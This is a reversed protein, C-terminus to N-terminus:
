DPIYGQYSNKTQYEIAEKLAANVDFAGGIKETLDTYDATEYIRDYGSRFSKYYNQEATFTINPQIMISNYGRIIWSLPVSYQNQDLLSWDACQYKWNRRYEANTFSLIEKEEETLPHFDAMYSLNDEVQEMTSMGSLVAIIGDLGAAFRIAYSAPSLTSSNQLMKKMAADPVKALMGGKVPEMVVVRCGHRRIVDYCAHSAIFPEEWDYYNLAIQVFEVEPHETLIRDLVEPSDHYSFGIHKAKGEEKWKKLHDFLHIEQMLGDYLFRNLNHLLYYDFYEVGCNELQKEFIGDVEEEKPMAFTPFKTALTYSSRDHRKVLAEKIANESAGNHYVFSTDFYTFGKELFRDVMESLLTINIDTPDESNVPLRMLGFGLKGLAM